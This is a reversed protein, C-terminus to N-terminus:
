FRVLSNNTGTDFVVYDGSQTFTGTTVINNTFTITAGSSPTATLNSTSNVAESYIGSGTFTNNSFSVDAKATTMLAAAITVAIASFRLMKNYVTNNKLIAM